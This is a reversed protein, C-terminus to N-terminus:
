KWAMNPRGMVRKRVVEYDPRHYIVSVGKNMFGGFRSVQEFRYDGQILDSQMYPVCESFNRGYNKLASL